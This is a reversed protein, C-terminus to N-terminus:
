YICLSLAFVLFLMMKLGSVESLMVIGGNSSGDRCSSWGAGYVSQTVKSDLSVPIMVHSDDNDGCQVNITTTFRGNAPIDTQEMMMYDNNPGSVSM